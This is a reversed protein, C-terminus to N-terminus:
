GGGGGVLEALAEVNLLMTCVATGGETYEDWGAAM